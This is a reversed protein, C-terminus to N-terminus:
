PLLLTDCNWLDLNFNLRVNKKKKLRQLIFVNRLVWGWRTHLLSANKFGMKKKKDFNMFVLCYNVKEERGFKMIHNLPDTPTYIVHTQM